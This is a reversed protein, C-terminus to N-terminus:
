GRSANLVGLMVFDFSPATDYISRAFFIPSALPHISLSSSFIPPALAGGTAVVLFTVVFVKVANKIHKSM